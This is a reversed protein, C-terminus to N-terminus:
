AVPVTQFELLSALERGAASISSKAHTSAFSFFYFPADARRARLCCIADFFFFYSPLAIRWRRISRDRACSQWARRRRWDAPWPWALCISAAVFRVPTKRSTTLKGPEFAFRDETGHQVAASRLNERGPASHLTPQASKDDQATAARCGITCKRRSFSPSICIRNM